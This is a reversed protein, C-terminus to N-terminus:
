REKEGFLQPAYHMLDQGLSTQVFKDEAIESNRKVPIHAIGSLPIFALNERPYTALLNKTLQPTKSLHIGWITSYRLPIIQRFGLTNVTAHRYDSTVLTTHLWARSDDYGFIMMDSYFAFGEIGLYSYEIGEPMFVLRNRFAIQYSLRGYVLTLWLTFVTAILGFLWIGEALWLWLGSVILVLSLLLCLIMQSTQLIRKWLAPRYIKGKRKEKGM